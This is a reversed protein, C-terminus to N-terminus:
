LYNKYDGDDDFEDWRGFIQLYNLKIKKKILFNFFNTMDIKLFKKPNKKLNIFYLKKIERLNTKSIKTIGVYRGQVSRLNKTKKGLETILDKKIKLTESDTEIKNKKELTKEM